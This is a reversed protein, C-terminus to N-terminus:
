MGISFYIEGRAIGPLFSARQEETGYRLLLPGSQRDAIWHAGVPAGAALLEELVVYRELMSQEAGGYRSPWSMGIWGRAGLARSFAPNSASWSRARDAPSATSLHEEIFARVEARLAGATEPLAYPEFQYLQQLAREEAIPYG